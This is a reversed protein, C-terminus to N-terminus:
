VRQRVLSPSGPELCGAPAGSAFTLAAVGQLEKGADGRLAAEGLEASGRRTWSPLVATWHWRCQGKYYQM